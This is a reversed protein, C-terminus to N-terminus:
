LLGTVGWAYIKWRRRKSMAGGVESCECEQLNRCSFYVCPDLVALSVAVRHTTKVKRKIKQHRERWEEKPVESLKASVM